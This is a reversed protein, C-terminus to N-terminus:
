PVYVCKGLSKSVYDLLEHCELIWICSVDGGKAGMTVCMCVCVCVFL